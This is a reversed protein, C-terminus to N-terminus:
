TAETTDSQAVGCVAAWWARSDRPNDLCSCQLPNGNGEGFCSLSFHFHLRETTDSEERGRPRCGVPSRQASSHSHKRTIRGLHSSVLGVATCKKMQCKKKSIIWRCLNILRIKFFFQQMIYKVTAKLSKCHVYLTNGTMVCKAASFLRENETKDCFQFLFKHHLNKSTYKSLRFTYAKKKKKKATSCPKHLRLEGILSWVWARQM